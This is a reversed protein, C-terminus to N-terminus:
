SVYSQGEQRRLAGSVEDRHYEGCFVSVKVYQKKAPDKLQVFPTPEKLMASIVRVTTGGNGIGRNDSTGFDITAVGEDARATSAILQVGLHREHFKGDRAELGERIDSRVRSKDAGAADTFGIRPNVWPIQSEDLKRLEEVPVFMSLVSRNPNTPSVAYQPRVVGNLVVKTAM